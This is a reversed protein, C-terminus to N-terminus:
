REGLVSMCLTCKSAKTIRTAVPANDVYDVMGGCEFQIQLGPLAERVAHWPHPPVILWVVPRM